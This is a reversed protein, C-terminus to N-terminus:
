NVDVGKDIFLEVIDCCNIGVIKCFLFIGFDDYLNIIGGEDIFLKVVDINEGLVVLYLFDIFYICSYKKELLKYLLIFCKVCGM